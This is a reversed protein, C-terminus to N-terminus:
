IFYLVTELERELEASAARSPPAFQSAAASRMAKAARQAARRAVPDM